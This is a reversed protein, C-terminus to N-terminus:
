LASILEEFRADPQRGAAGRFQSLVRRAAPEWRVMRARNEADTFMMWLMNRRREPLSRPDNRVRVHPENWALYDYHVDYVSAINPGLSDVLTQLRAISGARSVIGPPGAHGALERLHRHEDPGLLLARALADIVQASASIDRAQELWTYWTPSM